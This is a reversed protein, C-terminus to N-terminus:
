LCCNQQKSKLIRKILRSFIHSVSEIRRNIESDASLDDAIASGLSTFRLAVVLKYNNITITPAHKVSKDMGHTKKLSFEQCTNSLKDVIQQM